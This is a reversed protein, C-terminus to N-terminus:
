PANLKDKRKMFNVNFYSEWIHKIYKKETNERILVVNEDNNLISIVKKASLTEYM